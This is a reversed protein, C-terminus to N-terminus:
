SSVYIIFPLWAMTAQNDHPTLNDLRYIGIQLEGM